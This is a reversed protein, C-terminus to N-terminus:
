TGNFECLASSDYYLFIDFSYWLLSELPLLAQASHIFYNFTYLFLFLFGHFPIANISVFYLIHSVSLTIHTILSQTLLLDKDQITELRVSVEETKLHMNGKESWYTLSCCDLKADGVGLNWINIQLMELKSILNFLLKSDTFSVESNEVIFMLM